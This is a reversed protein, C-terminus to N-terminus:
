FTVEGALVSEVVHAPYLSECPIGNGDADMRAPQGELFWYVLSWFFETEPRASGSLDFPHEAAGARLDRCHLGHPVSEYRELLEQTTSPADTVCNWAVAGEDDLVAITARGTELRVPGISHAECVFVDGGTVNDPHMCALHHVFPETDPNARRSAADMQQELRAAITEVAVGAAGAPPAYQLWAYFADVDGGFSYQTDTVEDFALLTTDLQALLAASGCSSAANPIVPRLDGLAVHATGEVVELGRLMGVTDESFWGDYGDVREPRTPGALLAEVAGTVPDDAPVSRVVPFVEGCPDGLTGNPFFVEVEVSAPEAPDAPPEESPPDPPAPEELPAVPEDPGDPEDAGCDALLMSLVLAGAILRRRHRTSGGGRLRVV